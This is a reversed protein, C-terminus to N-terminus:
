AKGLIRDIVWCGKVHLRRQCHAAAEMEGLEDLAHVLLAYVPSDQYCAEALEVVRASWHRPPPSVEPGAIDFLLERLRHRAGAQVVVRAVIRAVDWSFEGTVALAAAASLAARRVTWWAASWGHPSHLYAHSQAALWVVNQHAGTVREFAARRAAALEQRSARGEAFREVVDVLLWPDEEGFL